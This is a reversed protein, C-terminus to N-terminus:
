AMPKPRPKSRCSASRKTPIYTLWQVSSKPRGPRCATASSRARPCAAPRIGESTTGSNTSYTGEAPLPRKVPIKRCNMAHANLKCLENASLRMSFGRLVDRKGPDRSFIRDIGGSPVQVDLLREPSCRGARCAPGVLGARQGAEVQRQLGPQPKQQPSVPRGALVADLAARLDKGTVPVGSQPRSDDMQGRYVLKRDRDFVYFDPTCAARYAKAVEQTADYLYPFTYKRQAAEEAMKAPADDPYSDADNSNIGIVAVGRGQYDHALVGARRGRAERLSLPQVHLGGPLGACPSILWRCWRALRTRFARLGACRRGFSSLMTSVTKVM